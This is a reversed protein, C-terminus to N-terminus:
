CAASFHIRTDHGVSQMRRGNVLSAFQKRSENLRGGAFHRGGKPNRRLAMGCGKEAVQKFRGTFGAGAKGYFGEAM